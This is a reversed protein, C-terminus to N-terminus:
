ARAGGGHRNELTTREVVLALVDEQRPAEGRWSEVARVLAGVVDTLPLRRNEDLAVLLRAIRRM